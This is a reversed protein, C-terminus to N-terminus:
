GLGKWGMRIVREVIELRLVLGVVMTEGPIGFLRLWFVGFGEDSM